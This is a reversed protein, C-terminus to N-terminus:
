AGKFHLAAARTFDLWSKLVASRARSPVRRVLRRGYETRVLLADRRLAGVIRTSSGTSKAGTTNGPGRSSFAGLRASACTLVSPRGRHLTRSRIPLLFEEREGSLDYEYGLGLMPLRPGSEGAFVPFTLAMPLLVAALSRSM